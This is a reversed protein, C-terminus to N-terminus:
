AHTRRARVPWESGAAPPFTHGVFTAAYFWAKKDWGPMAAEIKARRDTPLWSADLQWPGM